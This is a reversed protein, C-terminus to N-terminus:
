SPNSAGPTAVGHEYAWVVLQTRDRVAIKLLLNSVHTKVTTEGIVLEAAIESNALGRAVLALVENERPTLGPSPMSPAMARPTLSAFRAIVRRTVDPALLADGRALVQVAHILDEPSATKLLFGSAGAVLADFLYDDRDFTTLVLVAPRPGRRVLERTAALGDLGPMQIDMCVVDPDCAAVIDLASRGDAAEGVVQLGPETELVTRFGVRVVEHDDILVVRVQVPGKM